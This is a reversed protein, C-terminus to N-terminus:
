RVSVFMKPEDVPGGEAFPAYPNDVHPQSEARAHVEWGALLDPFFTVTKGGDLDLRVYADDLQAIRGSVDEGRTLRLTVHAGVSAEQRFVALKNM